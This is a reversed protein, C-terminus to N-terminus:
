SVESQALRAVSGKVNEVILDNVSADAPLSHRLKVVPDLFRTLANHPPADPEPAPAHYAAICGGCGTHGAVIVPILGSSLISM